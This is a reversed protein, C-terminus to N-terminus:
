CCAIGGSATCLSCRTSREEPAAIDAEAFVGSAYLPGAPSDGDPNSLWRAIVEEATELM